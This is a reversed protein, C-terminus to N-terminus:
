QLLEVLDVHVLGRHHIQSSRLLRRIEPSYRLLRDMEVSALVQADENVANVTNLLAQFNALYVPPIIAQVPTTGALIRILPVVAAWEGDSM